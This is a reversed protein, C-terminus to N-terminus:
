PRRRLTGAYWQNTWVPDRQVVTGTHPAHLLWVHGGHRRLFIAVHYIYGGSHFFMLDGRHLHRKPIHRVFGYQEAASRPLRLGAKGFSFETLGSCDFAGPGAAGYVYPDGRHNLAVKVGHHIKRDRKVIAHHIKRHRKVIAHHIKRDRQSLAANASGATFVSFALASVLLLPVIASLRRWAANAPM